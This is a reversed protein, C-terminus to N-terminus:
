VEPQTGVGEIGGPLSECFIM